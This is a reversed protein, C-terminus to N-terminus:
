PTMGGDVAVVQGTLYAADLLMDLVPGVEDPAAPRRLATRDLLRDRAADAVEATITSEVFGPSLANVTISRRGVEHALTRTLAEVGAKSAAYASQGANGFSAVPSTVNVIRGWRAKLMAPLVARDVHYTALLNVRITEAWVAPDQGVVLGDVRVGACHVLVRVPGLADTAAAVVADAGEPTGLDGAVVASPVDLDAAVAEAREPHAHAHLAVALGRRALIRAAVGGLAGSAGTVLAATGEPMGEVPRQQM